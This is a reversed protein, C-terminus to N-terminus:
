RLPALAETWSVLQDLMINVGDTHLAQPKFNVFGEFDTFLSLGVHQRVHAIQLESLVSRLQEAARAGLFSGYSIIGAAKNNFEAYYLDFYNKQASTMGHNYEPTIFIYGDAELTKEQLEKLRAYEEENGEYESFRKHFIPMNYDKLDIISYEAKGHTEGMEKIWEGVQPGVRGDRVSGIVIAIKKM